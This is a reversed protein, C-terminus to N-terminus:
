NEDDIESEQLEIINRYLESKEIMSQPSGSLAKGKEELFLVQDFQNFMAVRHSVLLIVSKPYTEKLAKIIKQETAIDVSAFPDDLLLIRRNAYLARALAVRAKQGGSLRAGLNGASTDKQHSMGEVEDKLQTLELVDDIDGGSEWTINDILSEGFLQARQPLYAIWSSREGSTLERLEKGNILISGEYPLLGTLVSLLTSKGCAVPGTIGCIQGSELRLNIGKLVVADSYSFSLDKIELSLENDNIAKSDFLDQYPKLLPKIRAWSVSSKQVSNFLKAAKSSKLSMATFISLFATFTGLTWQGVIVKNGGILFVFIVGTMAIANYLPQMSNELVNARVAKKRLDELAEGYSKEILPDVGSIRYLLANESAEITLSTLLANQQRYSSSAKVIFVKLKEAIFMAVPIFLIALLGLSFDFSVMTVVYAIMLVGTDFLETTFKHMGEVCADVDGIIRSMFQGPDTNLFAIYPQSLISNFLQSRMSALTRNAFRRIYFRKVFRLVQILLIVELYVLVADIIPDPGSSILITDMLNGLMVAGLPMLSNFALGFVVIM